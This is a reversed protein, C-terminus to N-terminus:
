PICNASRILKGTSEYARELYQKTVVAQAVQPNRIRIQQLFPELFRGYKELDKISGEKMAAAIEKETRPAMM